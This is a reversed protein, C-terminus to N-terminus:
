GPSSPPEPHRGCAWTLVDMTRLAILWQYDEVKALGIELFEHAGLGVSGEAEVGMWRFDICARDVHSYIDNREWSDLRRALDQTSRLSM